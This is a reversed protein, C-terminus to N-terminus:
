TSSNRALTATAPQYGETDVDAFVMGAGSGGMATTVELIAIDGIALKVQVAKSITQGLAQTVAPATCVGGDGDGRTGGQRILDAKIVVATTTGATGQVIVGFRKLTCPGMIALKDGAALAAPLGSYYRETYGAPM